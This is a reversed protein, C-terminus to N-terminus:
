LKKGLGLREWCHIETLFIDGHIGTPEVNDKLAKIIQQLAHLVVIATKLKKHVIYSLCYKVFLVSHHVKIQCLENSERWGGGSHIDVLDFYITPYM